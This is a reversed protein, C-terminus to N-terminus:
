WRFLGRVEFEGDIQLRRLFKADSNRGRDEGTGILHKLLGNQPSVQSQQMQEPGNKACHLLVPCRLLRSLLGPARCVHQAPARYAQGQDWVLGRRRASM